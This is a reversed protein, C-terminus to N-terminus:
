NKSRGGLTATLTDVSFDNLPFAEDKITTIVFKSSTRVIEDIAEFDNVIGEVMGRNALHSITVFDTEGLTFYVQNVGEISAIQEGVDYQYGEEFEAWVETILTLSLGVKELDITSLDSTIIGNKRLKELRNYITSKPIGTKDTLAQLNNTKKKSVAALIQIDKEDM